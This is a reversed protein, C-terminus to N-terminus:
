GRSDKLSRCRRRTAHRSVVAFHVRLRCVVYLRGARRRGVGADEGHGRGLVVSPWRTISLGACEDTRRDQHPAPAAQSRCSRTATAILSLPLADGKAPGGGGMRFDQVRSRPFTTGVPKSSLNRASSRELPPCAPEQGGFSEQRFSWTAGSIPERVLFFRGKPGAPM